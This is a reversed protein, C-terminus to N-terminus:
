PNLELKSVLPWYKRERNGGGLISAKVIYSEHERPGGADRLAAPVGPPVVAIVVGVKTQEIGAAQSTWHVRDGIKFTKTM